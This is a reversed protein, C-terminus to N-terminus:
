TKRTNDHNEGREDEREWECSELKKLTSLSKRGDSWKRKKAKFPEETNTCPFTENEHLSPHRKQRM